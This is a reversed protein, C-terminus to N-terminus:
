SQDLMVKWCIDFEQNSIVDKIELEKPMKPLKKGDYVKMDPDMDKIMPVITRLYTRTIVFKHVEASDNKIKEYIAAEGPGLPRLKDLGEADEQLKKQLSGIEGQAIRMEDDSLKFLMWLKFNSIAGTFNFAPEYAKALNYRAEPWWPCARAALEFQRIAVSQDVEMDHLTLEKKAAQLADNGRNFYKQAEDPCAPLQNMARALKIVKGALDANGPNAQYQTVAQQFDSPSSQAALPTTELLLVLYFALLCVAIVVQGGFITKFAAKM